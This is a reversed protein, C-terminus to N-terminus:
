FILTISRGPGNLVLTGRMLLDTELIMEFRHSSLIAKIVPVTFGLLHVTGLPDPLGIGVDDQISKSPNGATSPTQVQV